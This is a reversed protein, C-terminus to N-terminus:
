SAAEGRDEGGGRLEFVKIPKSKGKVRLPEMEALDFETREVLYRCSRESLITQGGRAASCLRAGLNVNDGLITYDMRDASGVAGMVMDGTNIGIGVAINEWEDHAANLEEIKRQIELASRAANEVMDDGQFVAVLEDGVYKDIDGYHALVIEAQHRLYTNLMAIVIDPQVKESFATFGRIDSFFVTATKRTGGLSVGTESGQIADMTSGSVFKRLEYRERLGQIMENIRRGLDAVEDRSPSVTVRQHFNGQGVEQVVRGIEVIPRSIKGSFIVAGMAGALLGLSVWTLLQHRMKTVALYADEETRDVVVAWDLFIPFAFGGLMAEGSPRVYPAVQIALAGPQRLAEVARHVLDLETRVPFGPTFLERGEADIFRISGTGNFPHERLVQWLRKMDFRAALTGPRGDAPHELPLVLTMLWSDIEPIRVPGGVFVGDRWAGGGNELNRIELVEQPDLGSRALLVSFDERSGRVSELGEFDLQLWVLDVIDQSPTELGNLDGNEIANRVMRLPGLWTHQYLEDIGRALEGATLSIEDNAVSKLEDRTITIMTRGAIGLPLLALLMSFFLLKKRLTPKFFM